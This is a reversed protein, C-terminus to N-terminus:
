VTMDSFVEEVSKGVPSGSDHDEFSQVLAKLAKKDNLLRMTEKYSEWEDMSILVMNGNKHTLIAQDHDCVIQRHLEYLRSRAKSISIVEM